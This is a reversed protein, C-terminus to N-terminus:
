PHRGARCAPAQPAARGCRSAGVLGDGVGGQARMRENYADTVLLVLALSVIVSVVMALRKWDYKRDDDLPRL